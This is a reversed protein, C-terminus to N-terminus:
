SQEGTVHAIAAALEDVLRDVMRARKNIAYEDPEAGRDPGNWGDLGMANGDDWAAELRSAIMGFLHDSLLANVPVSVVRVSGSGTDENVSELVLGRSSERGGRSYAWPRDPAGDSDKTFFGSPWIAVVAGEPLADLREATWASM